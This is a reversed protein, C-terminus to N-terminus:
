ILCKDAIATIRVTTFKVICFSKPIHKYTNPAKTQTLTSHNYLQTHTPVIKVRATVPLWSGLVVAYTAALNQIAVAAILRTVKWVVLALHHVKVVRTQAIPM